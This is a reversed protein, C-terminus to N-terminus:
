VNPRKVKHIHSPSGAVYVTWNVITHIHGQKLTTRGDGKTNVMAVHQHGNNTTMNYSLRAM